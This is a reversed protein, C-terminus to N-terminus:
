TRRPSWIARLVLLSRAGCDPDILMVSDPQPESEEDFRITCSGGARVGPTHVEYSGLWTLLDAHQEGHTTFPIGSPLYVRGELLEANKLNPMADFRREFEERSLREGNVLPPIRAGTRKRSPHM